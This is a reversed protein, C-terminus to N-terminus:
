FNEWGYQKIANYFVTQKRYYYGNTGWRIEPVKCTIGIYVKGSPSTHKYVCFKREM